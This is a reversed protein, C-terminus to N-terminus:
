IVLVFSSVRLKIKIALSREEFIITNDIKRKKREVRPYNHYLYYYYYHYWHIQCFLVKEQIKTELVCFYQNTKKLLYYVYYIFPCNHLTFIETIKKKELYVVKLTEFKHVYCYYYDYREKCNWSCLLLFVRVIIILTRM